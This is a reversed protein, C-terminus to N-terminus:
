DNGVRRVTGPVVVLGTDASHLAAFCLELSRLNSRGSNEPERGQEVAALLEMMTGEFGVEFWTSDFKPRAVGGATFLQLGFNHDTLGDGASRVTGKEGCVVFRDEQGYEVNANYSIRVQAGDFDMVATALFPPKATQFNARATSAYVKRATRGEMFAMAFDFWHVGFDYLLLHHIENFPTGETWRHDWGALFDVSSVQGLLGARVAQLAYRYYPAWRGNQNVGLKVGKADALDCLRAGVDLDEVFPKQSLVHRGANLAAEILAVRPGPHTAIDLVEIDTRKRILEFGDSFVEADPYFEDRRAEAKAITPNAIAVVELGLRRYAKLHHDTIGGAGILGIRPRYGSASPAVDLQPPEIEECCAGKAKDNEENSM